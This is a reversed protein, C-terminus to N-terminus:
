SVPAEKSKGVLYEPNNPYAAAIKAYESQPHVGDMNPKVTGGLLEGGSMTMSAVKEFIRITEIPVLKNWAALDTSDFLNAAKMDAKLEDSAFHELAKYVNRLAVPKADGTFDTDFKAAEAKFAEQELGILAMQQANHFEVNHAAAAPSIGKEICSAIYATEVAKEADNYEVGEIRPLTYSEAKGDCGNLAALKTAHAAKADDDADATLAFVGGEMKANAAALATNATDRATNATDRETTMTGNTIKTDHYAKALGTVTKIDQFAKSDPHEKAVHDRFGQTFEGTESVMSNGENENM